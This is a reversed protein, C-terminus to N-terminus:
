ATTGRCCLASIGVPTEVVPANTKNMNHAIRALKKLCNGLDVWGAGSQVDEVTLSARVTPLNQAVPRNRYSVRQEAVIELHGRAKFKPVLNSAVQLGLQSRAVLERFTAGQGNSARELKISHAARLIALCVEGAPRRHSAAQPKRADQMSDPWRWCVMARM